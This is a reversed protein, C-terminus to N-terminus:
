ANSVLNRSVCSYDYVISKLFHGIGEGANKREVKGKHEWLLGNWTVIDTARYSKLIVYSTYYPGDFNVPIFTNLLNMAANDKCIAGSTYCKFFRYLYVLNSFVKVAVSALNRGFAGTYFRGGSELSRWARGFIGGCCGKWKKGWLGWLWFKIEIQKRMTCDLPVPM